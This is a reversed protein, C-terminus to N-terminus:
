KFSFLTWGYNLSTHFTGGMGPFLSMGVGASTYGKDTYIGNPNVTRSGELALMIAQAEFEMDMGRAYENWSKIANKDAKMFGVTISLNLEIAKNSHTNRDDPGVGLSGGVGVGVDYGNSENRTMGAQASASGHFANKLTVSCAAKVYFGDASPPEYDGYYKLRAYYDRVARLGDHTLGNAGYQKFLRVNADVFRADADWGSVASETIDIGPVEFIPIGDADTGTRASAPELGELERNIVPSNGAFQYPTWHPFKKTLPDVRFFRAIRADYERFKYAQWGTEPDTEQDNYGYRYELVKRDPMLWGFPYYDALYALIPQADTPPDTEDVVRRNVVARVNGLHDKLEYSYRNEHRYYLGLRGSSYVTHEKLQLPGTTGTQTYVGLANGQADRFYYTVAEIAGAGTYAIKQM